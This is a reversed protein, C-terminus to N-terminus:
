PAFPDNPTDDHDPGPVSPPGDVVPVQAPSDGSADHQPLVGPPEQVGESDEPAAPYCTGCSQWATTGDPQEIAPLSANCGPCSRAEVGTQRQASFDTEPSSTDSM